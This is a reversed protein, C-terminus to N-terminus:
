GDPVPVPQPSAGARPRDEAAAGRRGLPRGPQRLVLYGLGVGPRGQALPGPEDTGFLGDVEELTLGYVEPLALGGLRVDWAEALHGTGRCTECPLHVDPLFAMDLTVVGRGGCASCRAELQEARIGLAQADESGAFLRRLPRDLDLYAAPSTIGARSQDVLLARPPAGEIREHEGPEVPEYAVSTTQKKPALARGLIDNILTSKGSGSAGCVGALVGLPLDVREIDLNNARAGYVSLWGQPPRFAKRAPFRRQGSLWRATLSDQGAVQEPRGQAVVQGGARGAGPGLEILHDAARWILPDHEVVIVTNGERRLELLAELLAQVEAPHLGRTPEDLLLTLSTLGSSLLAALRVRQVEGASLTGAVRDLHLYGLGVQILFRLRRQM